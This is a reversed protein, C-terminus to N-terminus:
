EPESGKVSAADSSLSTLRRSTRDRPPRIGLPREDRGAGVRPRRLPRQAHLEGVRAIVGHDHLGGEFPRALPDAASAQGLAGGLGDGRREAQGVFVLLRDEDLFEDVAVLHGDAQDAVALPDLDQARHPDDRLPRRGPEDVRQLDLAVPLAPDVVLGGGPERGPRHPPQDLLGPEREVREAAAVQRPDVEPEPVADGVEDLGVGQGAEGRDRAVQHDQRSPMPQAVRVQDPLDQVRREVADAQRTSAPPTRAKLRALRRTATRCLAGARGGECGSATESASTTSTARATTSARRRSPSSARGSAAAGGIPRRTSDRSSGRGSTTKLRISPKPPELAPSARTVARSSSM